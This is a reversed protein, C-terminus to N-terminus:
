LPASLYVSGHSVKANGDCAIRQVSNIPTHKCAYTALRYRQSQHCACHPLLSLLLIHWLYHKIQVLLPKMVKIKGSSQTMQSMVAQLHLCQTLWFYPLFSLCAFWCFTDILMVLAAQTLQPMGLAICTRKIFAPYLTEANGLRVCLSYQEASPCATTCLAM